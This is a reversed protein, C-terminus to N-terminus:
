WLPLRWLLDRLHTSFLVKSVYLLQGKYRGFPFGLNALVTRNLQLDNQVASHIESVGRRISISELAKIKLRTGRTNWHHRRPLFSSTNPRHQYGNHLFGEHWLFFELNLFQWDRSHRHILPHWFFCVSQSMSPFSQSRSKGSNLPLDWRMDLWIPSVPSYAKARGKSAQALAPRQHTKRVYLLYSQWM